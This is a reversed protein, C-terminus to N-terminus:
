WNSSGYRRHSSHRGHDWGDSGWRRHSWHRSHERHCDWGGSWYRCHHVQEASSTVQNEVGAVSSVAPAAQASLSFLASSAVAIALMYKKM